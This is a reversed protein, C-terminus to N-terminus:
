RTRKFRPSINLYIVGFIITIVFIGWSICMIIFSFVNLLIPICAILLIISPVILMWGVFKSMAKENWNAQVEESMTNYGAILGNAKGTRVILGLALFIIGVILNSSIMAITDM